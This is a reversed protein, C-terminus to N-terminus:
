RLRLFTTRNGDPVLDNEGRWILWAAEPIWGVELEIPVLSINWPPSTAPAELKSIAGM